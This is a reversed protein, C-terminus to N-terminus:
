PARTASAVSSRHSQTRRNSGDRHLQWLVVTVCILMATPVIALRLIRAVDRIDVAQRAGQVVAGRGPPRPATM